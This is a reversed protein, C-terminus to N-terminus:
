GLAQRLASFQEVPQDSAALVVVEDAGGDGFARVQAAVTKASGAVIIRGVRRPDLDYLLGLWGAPDNFGPADTIAVAVVAARRVASPTRGAARVDADLLPQQAAFWDLTCLHPIWGDGSAAARQRARDSRGGVWIPLARAPAMRYRGTSSWAARLAPIGSDLLRGRHQYRDAFGAQEYEGRHEGSGVGVVVRGGSIHDIFATAKAVAAPDRLPLQLVCPGITCRQTATAVLALAALVDVTPEHWFLHDTLWFSSAGAAEASKALEGLARWDGPVSPVVLGVPLPGGPRHDDM